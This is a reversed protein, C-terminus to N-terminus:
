SKASRFLEAIRTAREGVQKAWTSDLAEAAAAIWDSSELAALMMRFQSLRPWGLNFAMNALGRQAPEPMKSWWPIRDDLEASTRSIDNYFMNTAEQESIGNDTLNRGIGITTKGVSDIYPKLKLGEDLRLDAYLKETDMVVGDAARFSM